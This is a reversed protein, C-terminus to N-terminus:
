PPGESPVGVTSLAGRLRLALTMLVDFLSAERLPNDRAHVHKRAPRLVRDDWGLETAALVFISRDPHTYLESKEGVICRAYMYCADFAADTRSRRSLEAQQADQLYIDGLERWAHIGKTTMKQEMFANLGALVSGGMDPAATTREALAENSVDYRAKIFAREAEDPTTDPEM